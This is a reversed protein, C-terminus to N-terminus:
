SSLPCSAHDYHSSYSKVLSHKLYLSGLQGLQNAPMIRFSSLLFIVTLACVETIWRGSGLVGHGGCVM